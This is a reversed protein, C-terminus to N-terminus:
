ISLGLSFRFLLDPFGFVTFGVDAANFVRYTRGMSIGMPLPLALASDLNSFEGSAIESGTMVSAGIRYRPNTYGTYPRFAQMLLGDIDLFLLRVPILLYNWGGLKDKMKFDLGFGFGHQATKGITSKDGFSM